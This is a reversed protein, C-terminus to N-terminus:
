LRKLEDMMAPRNRYTSKWETVIEAVKEKGNPYKQMIRLISVMEQYRKRDSTHSAMNKVETEYKRLLENPYINKLSEEYETLKYLGWSDVVIKLLRDYLKEIEFLKDIRAHASIKSFIIERKEVWEEDSYLSKLEMYIDIDQNGVKIFIYNTLEFAEQYQKNNVIGQIDEYLFEELESVFAWASHYDIFSQRGTHKRFIGNIQNKYREMDAPSVKCFLTNRFRNWLKEDNELINVLFNRVITEDAKKVQEVVSEERSPDIKSEIATATEDKSIDNEAENEVCFLVAAMHKCYNGDSAYPCNCSMDTIKGAGRDIEVDYNYSGCVTAEIRDKSVHLDAVLDRNYYDLGRELIRNQFLQQWIMM